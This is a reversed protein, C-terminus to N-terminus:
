LGFGGNTVPTATATVKAVFCDVAVRFAREVLSISQNVELGNEGSGTGSGDGPMVISSVHVQKSREIYVEGTAYLDWQGTSVEDTDYGGGAAVKAGTKTFYLGNEEKVLGLGMAILVLGRPMHLTPVGAYVSAAYSELLAMAMGVSVDSAPTLDVVADWQPDDSGPDVFRGYLLAQEVGKGANRDFVRVIESEMDAQDLGIPHCQVGGHVAFEIGPIWSASGFTKFDGTETLLPNPCLPTPVLTDLCNYSVWLGDNNRLAFSSLDTLNGAAEAHDLVSSKLPTTSPRVVEPATIIQATM